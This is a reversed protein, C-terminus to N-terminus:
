MRDKCRAQYIRQIEKTIGVFESLHSMMLELFNITKEIELIGLHNDAPKMDQCVREINFALWDLWKGLSNHLADSPDASIKAGAQYYSHLFAKYTAEEFQGIILGSWELAASIVEMDPNVLGAWEWDIIKPTAPNLWIVNKPNLDRHSALEHKSLKLKSKQYLAEWEGLKNITSHLKGAFPLKKEGAIKALRLWNEQGIYHNASDTLEPMQLNLLHMKAFINGMVKAQEIAAPQLSSTEGAIWNFVLATSGDIIHLPSGHIILASIAPIGQQAMERAIKESILYDEQSLSKHVNIEKIAFYGKNTKIKWLTNLLGSHVLEPIAILKGLQYLQCINLFQKHKINQM